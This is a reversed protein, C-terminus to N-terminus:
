KMMMRVMSATEYAQKQNFKSVMNDLNILDIITGIGCFGMTLVYLVGIGTDGVIFRQIGAVGFFGIITFVMLDKKEKRKSRFLTYFQQQQNETMENTLTQILMLEDPQLDPLMMLMQQQNM